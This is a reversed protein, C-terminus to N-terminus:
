AQSELNSLCLLFDELVPEKGQIGELVLVVDQRREQESPM